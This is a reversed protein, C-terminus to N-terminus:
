LLYVCVCEVVGSYRPRFPRCNCQKIKGGISPGTLPGHLRISSWFRRMSTETGSYSFANLFFVCCVLLFFFRGWVRCCAAESGRCRNSHRHHASACVRAGLSAHMRWRKDGACACRQVRKVRGPTNACRKCSPEHTAEDPLHLLDGPRDARDARTPRARSGECTNVWAMLALAALILYDHSAAPRQLLGPDLSTANTSKIVMSGIFFPPLPLSLPLPWSLTETSGHRTPLATHDTRSAAIAKESGTRKNATLLHSGRHRCHKSKVHYVCVRRACHSVAVVTRGSLGLLGGCM